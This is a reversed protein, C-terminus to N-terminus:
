QSVPVALGEANPQSTVFGTDSRTLLDRVLAARRVRERSLAIATTELHGGSPYLDPANRLGLERVRASCSSHRVFGGLTDPAEVYVDLPVDVALVLKGSFELPDARHVATSETM